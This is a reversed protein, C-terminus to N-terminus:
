FYIYKPSKQSKLEEFAEHIKTAEKVLYSRDFETSKFEYMDKPTRTTNYANFTMTVGKGHSDKTVVCVIKNYIHEKVFVSTGQYESRERCKYGRQRLLTFYNNAKM